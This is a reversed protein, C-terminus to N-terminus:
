CRGRGCVLLFSSLTSIGEWIVLFHVKRVSSEVKKRLSGVKTAFHQDVGIFPYIFLVGSGSKEHGHFRSGSSTEPLHSIIEYVYIKFFCLINGDVTVAVMQFGSKKSCLQRGAQQQGIRTAQTCGELAGLPRVVVDVVVLSLM